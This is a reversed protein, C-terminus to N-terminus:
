ERHTTGRGGGPEGGWIYAVKAGGGSQVHRDLCNHSVNLRGGLFWKVWPPNWECVQQWDQVWDLDRARQEWFAEPDRAAEDYVGPNNWLARRAFEEPPEFVRDESLLADITAQVDEPM